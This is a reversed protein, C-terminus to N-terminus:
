IITASGMIYDFLYGQFGHWLYLFGRDCCLLSTHSWGFGVWTLFTTYDRKVNNDVVLDM